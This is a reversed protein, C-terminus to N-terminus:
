EAERTKFYTALKISLRVGKTQGSGVSLSDVIFFLKSQELQNIFRVIKAYEGDIATDIIVSELGPRDKLPSTTYSVPGKRVGNSVAVKDFEEMITAFGTSAPLFQVEYFQDGQKASEVLSVEIKRYRDVTERRARRENKLKELDAAQFSAPQFAFFALVGNVALLVLLVAYVTRRREYLTTRHTGAIQLGAARNSPM